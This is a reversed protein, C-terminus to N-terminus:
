KSLLLLVSELALQQNMGGYWSTSGYGKGGLKRYIQKIYNLQQIAQEIQATSWMMASQAVAPERDPNLLVRSKKQSIKQYILIDRFWLILLEILEIFDLEAKLLDEATRFVNIPKVGIFKSLIDLVQNRLTLFDGEVLRLARGLSGEALLAYLEADSEKIQFQKILQSQILDRSLRYFRVLQCRSIITPLIAQIDTTILILVVNEAPEELTKLLANAAQPMMRHADPIVYVRRAGEFAKLGIEKRFERITDIKLFSDTEKQQLRIFNPHVQHQMRKCSECLGCSDGQNPTECLLATAFKTAIYEKGIGEPGYFLYAHSIRGFQLVNRLFTLEATHGIIENYGM